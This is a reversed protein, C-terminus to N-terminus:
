RSRDILAAGAPASSRRAQCLEFLKDGLSSLASDKELYADAGLSRAQDELSRGGFGSLVVLTVEPQSLRLVPLTELGDMVPMALDMVIVDPKLEIALGVAVSGDEAEGVVTFRGDTELQVHVLARINPDDDAVLVRIRNSM